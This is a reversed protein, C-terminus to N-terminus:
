NWRSSNCGKNTLSENNYNGSLHSKQVSIGGKELLDALNETNM